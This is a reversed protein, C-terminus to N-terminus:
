LPDHPPAQRPHAGYGDAAPAQGTWAARLLAELTDRRVPRPNAYPGRTCADAAKAIGSEPMGLDRLATPAGANEAFARVAAAAPAGLAQEIVATARPAWPANYAIVYPLIVAHTAAHPLGFSGGLVHCLKHHLAMGATALCTGALWAGYLASGRAARDAPDSVVGPLASVITTVAERAMLLTVPDPDEAWLAEVAHALSNLASTVTIGVPLSLTLDVDYIVTEPLVEPSRLTTKTGDVTEGLVPTVESGAYTTPLVIQDLGTRYAIAKGLGTTSGGGISVLCDASLKRAVALAQETVNVPTHPAAGTFTGAALPGLQEALEEAQRRRGPTSLVLARRGGLLGVERAAHRRGGPEFVVRTPPSEHVFTHM